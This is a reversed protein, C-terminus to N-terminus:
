YVPFNLFCFVRFRRASSHHLRGLLCLRFFAHKRGGTVECGIETTAARVHRGETQKRTVFSEPAALTPLDRHCNTCAYASLQDSMGRLYTFIVVSFVRDVREKLSDTIRWMRLVSLTTKARWGTKM